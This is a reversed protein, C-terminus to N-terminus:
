FTIAINWIKVISYCNFFFLLTLNKPRCDYVLTCICFHHSNVQRNLDEIVKNDQQKFNKNKQVLLETELNQVKQKLQKEHENAKELKKDKDRLHIQLNEVKRLM